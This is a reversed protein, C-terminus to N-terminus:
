QLNEVETIHLKEIWISKEIHQQKKIILIICTKDQGMDALSAPHALSIASQWTNDSM